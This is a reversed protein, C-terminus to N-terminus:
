EWIYHHHIEIHKMRAHLILNRVLKIASQNDCHLCTPTNELYQLEKFLLRLSAVKKTVYTVVHYKVDTTSLAVTPQLKSSWTITPALNLCYGLQQVDRVLDRGWKYDVFGELKLTAEHSFLIGFHPTGKIYKLLRKTAELHTQQLVNMYKNVHSVVYSLDLRTQTLWILSGV